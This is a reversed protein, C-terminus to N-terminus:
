LLLLQVKNREEYSYKPSTVLVFQCLQKQNHFKRIYECIVAIRVNHPIGGFIFLNLKIEAM